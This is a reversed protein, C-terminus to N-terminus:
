IRSTYKKKTKGWDAIYMWDEGEWQSESETFGWATTATEGQM